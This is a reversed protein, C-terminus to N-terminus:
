ARAVALLSFGRRAPVPFAVYTDDERLGDIVKIRGAQLVPLDEPDLALPNAPNLVVPECVALIEPSLPRPIPRPLRIASAQLPAQVFNADEVEIETLTLGGRRMSRAREGRELCFICAWEWLPMAADGNVRSETFGAFVTHARGTEILQRARRLVLLSLNGRGALTLNPGKIGHAIAAMGAAINYGFNAFLTSSLLRGERARFQEYAKERTPCPGRTAALVIGFGCPDQAVESTAIGADGMAEDVAIIANRALPDLYRAIKLKPNNDGLAESLEGTPALGVCHAPANTGEGLARFFAGRGGVPSLAGIGTLVIECTM